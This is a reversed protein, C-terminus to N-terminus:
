EQQSGRSVPGADYLGDFKFVHQPSLFHVDGHLWIVNKEDGRANELCGTLCCYHCGYSEGRLRIEVHVLATECNSHDPLLRSSHNEKLSFWSLAQRKPRCWNRFRKVGLDAVSGM